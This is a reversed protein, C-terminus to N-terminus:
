SFECTRVFWLFTLFGVFTNISHANYNIIYMQSSNSYIRTRQNHNLTHALVCAPKLYIPQSSGCPIRTLRAYDPTSHGGQSLFLPQRGASMESACPIAFFRSLASFLSPPSLFHALFKLWILLRWKNAWSDSRRWKKIAARACDVFLSKGNEDKIIM